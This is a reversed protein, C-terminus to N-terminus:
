KQSWSWEAGPAEGGGGPDQWLHASIGSSGLDGGDVSYGFRHSSTSTAPLTNSKADPSKSPSIEDDDDSESSTRAEHSAPNPSIMDVADGFLGGVIEADTYCDSYSGRLIHPGSSKDFVPYLSDIDVGLDSEDVTSTGNGIDDDELLKSRHKSGDRGSGGNSLALRAEITLAGAWQAYMKTQRSKTRMSTLTEGDTGLLSSEALAAAHEPHVSSFNYIWVLCYNLCLTDRNERATQVAELMTAVADTASGFDCHLLALNLLAYQYFKRESNKMSYDFYQYINDFAVTYDGSYWSELFYQYFKITPNKNNTDLLGKLKNKLLGPILSGYKQMKRIQFQILAELTKLSAMPKSQEGADSAVTRRYMVRALANAEAIEWERAMVSDILIKDFRLDVGVMNDYRRLNSQTPQRYRVFAKWIGLAVHFDLRLYEICVRRVFGGIITGRSIMFVEDVNPVPQGHNSLDHIEERTPMVLALMRYFYEHLADNTDLVWLSDVFFDWLSRGPLWNRAPYQRLLKELPALSELFDMAEGSPALEEATPNVVPELAPKGAVGGSTEGPGDAMPVNGGSTISSQSASKQHGPPRIASSSRPRGANKPAPPSQPLHSIHFVIFALFPHVAEPVVRDKSYLDVLILLAIRAPNLTKAAM